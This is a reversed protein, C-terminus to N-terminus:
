KAVSTILQHTVEWWSMKIDWQSMLDSTPIGISSLEMSEVPSRFRQRLLFKKFLFDRLEEQAVMFVLTILTITTRWVWHLMISEIIEVLLMVGFSHQKKNKKKFFSLLHESEPYGAPFSKRYNEPFMCYLFIWLIQIESFFLGYLEM